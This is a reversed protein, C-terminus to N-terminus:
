KEDLANVYLKGNHDISCFFVQKFDSLGKAQIQNKLWFRNKEIQRLNEDNVKGDMILPLPLAEYKINSIVSSVAGERKKLRQGGEGSNDKKERPFVSLQGSTELIAFEVDAVSDIKQSRLQMLLDDLNYRQRKMEKRDIQGNRIIVSPEGDFWIRLKRFRLSLVAICIQILLLTLMPIFGDYLPREIDELAFVAIEAIMVSIVLDFISLEGIERKGMIRMVAFVTCYMMVTRFVLPWIHNAM